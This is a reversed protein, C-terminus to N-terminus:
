AAFETQSIRYVFASSVKGLRDFGSDIDGVIVFPFTADFDDTLPLPNDKSYEFDEDDDNPLEYGFIELIGEPSFQRTSDRLETNRDAYDKLCKQYHDFSQNIEDTWKEDPKSQMRNFFPELLPRDEENWLSKDPDITWELFSWVLDWYQEKNQILQKIHM